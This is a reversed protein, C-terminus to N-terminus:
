KLEDPNQGFVIQKADLNASGANYLNNWEEQSGGYYIKQVDHFYGWFSDEIGMLTNPLYLFKIGSTNFTNNALYRTGNPIIVSSVRSFLFTADEFSVVNCTTGNIDYTSAVRVKDSNGHYKKIYIETGDTYYEFDNIDTYGNLWVSNANTVNSVSVTSNESQPLKSFITSEVNEAPGQTAPGDESNNCTSFVLILALIAAVAIIVRKYKKILGEKSETNGKNDTTEEVANYNPPLKENNISHNTGVQQTEGRSHNPKESVKVTKVKVKKPSTNESM